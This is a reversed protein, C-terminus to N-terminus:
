FLFRIKNQVQKKKLEKHQEKTMFKCNTSVEWTQGDEDTMEELTSSCIRPEMWKALLGPLLEKRANPTCVLGWYVRYELKDAGPATALNMRPYLSWHIPYLAKCTLGLCASTINHLHSFIELHIEPPMDLLGKKKKMM